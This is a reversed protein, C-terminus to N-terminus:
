LVSHNDETLMERLVWTGDVSLYEQFYPHGSKYYIASSIFGRDDLYEIFAIEGDKLRTISLINGDVGM